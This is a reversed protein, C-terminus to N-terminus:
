VWRTPHMIRSTTTARGSPHTGDAKNCLRTVKGEKLFATRLILALSAQTELIVIEMFIKEMGKLIPSNTSPLSASPSPASKGQHPLPETPLRVPMIHSKRLRSPYAPLAPSQRPQTVTLRKFHNRQRATRPRQRRNPLKPLSPSLNINLSHCREILLLLHRDPSHQRATTPQM